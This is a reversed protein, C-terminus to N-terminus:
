QKGRESEVEILKELYHKAKLLDEVGNKEKYRALYKLVNGALFGCFAEHSFWARMADWPQIRKSVYHDGGIQYANATQESV